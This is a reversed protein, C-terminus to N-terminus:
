TNKLGLILVSECAISLKELDDPTFVECKAIVRVDFGTEKLRQTYDSGYQRVHDDQGFYKNRESPDLITPDEFTVEGKMPVQLSAWGGPKLARYIERLAKRDDPIHELVHNCVVADFHADPFDLATLDMARMAQTGDLDISIYDFWEKFRTEFAVEPAVHLM